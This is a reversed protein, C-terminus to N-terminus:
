VKQINRPLRRIIKGSKIQIQVLGKLISGYIIGEREEKKKTNLVRVKDGIELTAAREHAEHKAKDKRKTAEREEKRKLEKIEENAEHLEEALQNHAILLERLQDIIEELKQNASKDKM